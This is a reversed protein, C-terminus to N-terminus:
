SIAGSFTGSEIAAAPRGGANGDAMGGFRDGKGGEFEEHVLLARGGKRAIDPQDGKLEVVAGRDGREGEGVKRWVPIV